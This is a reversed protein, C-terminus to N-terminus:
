GEHQGREDPGIRQHQQEAAGANHGAHQLRKANWEFRDVAGLTDDRDICQREIGVHYQRYRGRELRDIGRDLFGRLIKAGRASAHQTGDRQRQDQWRDEGARQQHENFPQLIEAHGEHQGLVLRYQGHFGVLQEDALGGVVRGRGATTQVM